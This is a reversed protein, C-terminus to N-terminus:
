QAPLYPTIQFPADVMAAWDLTVYLRSQGTIQPLSLWGITSYPTQVTIQYHDLQTMGTPDTVSPTTIDSFTLTFLEKNATSDWCTYGTTNSPLTIGKTSPDVLSTSHGSGFASPEAQQLYTVMQTAITQLNTQGVSAERAAERACNWMVNHVEMM